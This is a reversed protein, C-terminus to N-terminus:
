PQDLNDPIDDVNVEENIDREPIAQETDPLKMLNEIIQSAQSKTLDKKSAVNYKVYLREDSQGKKHLLISILQIQKETAPVENMYGSKVPTIGNVGEMEEAPTPNYGALAVVFGFMQRLAKSGARTQAMSALQFTPKSKWNGEDRMCYAEAHGVEFGMKNDIVYGVAKFGQIIDIEVPEADKTAVSVNYYKGLTQWAEYFLHEKDGGFKKAWGNQKVIDILRDAAKKAKTTDREPNFVIKAPQITIAKDNAM